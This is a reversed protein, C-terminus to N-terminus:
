QSPMYANARSASLREFILPQKPLLHPLTHSDLFAILNKRSRLIDAPVFTGAAMRKLTSQGKDAVPVLLPYVALRNPKINRLEVLYFIRAMGTARAAALGAKKLASSYDAPQGAPSHKAWWAEMSPSYIFRPDLSRCSLWLRGHINTLSGIFTATFNGKLEAKAGPATPKYASWTIVYRRKGLPYVCVINEVAHKTGQRLQWLGLLNRNRVAQERSVLARNVALPARCGALLLAALAVFFLGFRKLSLM